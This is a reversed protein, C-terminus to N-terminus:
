KVAQQEYESTLRNFLRALAIHTKVNEKNDLYCKLDQKEEEELEITPGKIRAQQALANILVWKRNYGSHIYDKDLLYAKMHEDSDVDVVADGDYLFTRYDLRIFVADDELLQKYIERGLHTAWGNASIGLPRAKETLTEM